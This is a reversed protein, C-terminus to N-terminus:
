WAGGRKGERAYPDLYFRGRFVGGADRIDYVTVDDHWVPVNDIATIKLGYLREVVGFLGDIVASAPFYPRLDEDAVQYRAQNLEGGYYYVARSQLVTVGDAEAQARLAVMVQEAPQRSREALDLLFSEIRGPSPAMKSALSQEAYNAFGLLG